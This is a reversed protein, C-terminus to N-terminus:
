TATEIVENTGYAKDALLYEAPIGEILPRAQTCAAATGGTEMVRVLM